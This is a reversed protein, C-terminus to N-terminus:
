VGIKKTKYFIPTKKIFFVLFFKCMDFSKSIYQMDKLYFLSHSSFTALKEKLNIQTKANFYQQCEKGVLKPCRHM